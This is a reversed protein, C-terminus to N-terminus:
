RTDRAPMSTRLTRKNRGTRIKGCTRQRLKRALPHSHGSTNKRRVHRRANNSRRTRQIAPRTGRTQVVARTRRRHHRPRPEEHAPLALQASGSDTQLSQTLTTKEMDGSTRQRPVKFPVSGHRQRFFTAPAPYDTHDACNRSAHLARKERQKHSRSHSTHLNRDQRVINSRAAPVRKQHQVRHKDRKHSAAAGAIALAAAHTRGQARGPTDSGGAKRRSHRKEATGGM